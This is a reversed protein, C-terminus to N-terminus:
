KVAMTQFDTDLMAYFYNDVWDGRIPLVKRKSGERTMGANELVRISAINEVACGAEVRHLKLDVFAFNLLEALAEKAYGQGWYAPHLKYWVEAIKFTPRGLNLAMLGIFQNTQVLKINFTYSMRPTVKQQELWDKLLIETTQISEPIGLTNFRDVEPLSHLQHVEMLDALSLETLLLRETQLEM